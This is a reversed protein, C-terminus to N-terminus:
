CRPSLAARTSERDTASTWPASKRTSKQTRERRRSCSANAVGRGEEARSLTHGARQACFAFVCYLIQASMATLFPMATQFGSQLSSTGYASIIMQFGSPRSLSTDMSSVSTRVSWLLRPFLLAVRLTMTLLAPLLSPWEFPLVPRFDIEFRCCCRPPYAPPLLFCPPLSPRLGPWSSLPSASAVLLEDLILKAPPVRPLPLDSDGCIMASWGSVGSSNSWAGVPVARSASPFSIGAVKLTLELPPMSSASMSIQASFIAAGAARGVGCARPMQHRSPSCCCWENATTCFASWSLKSM